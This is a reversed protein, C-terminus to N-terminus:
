HEESRLTAPDLTRAVQDLSPIVDTSMEDVTVSVDRIADLNPGVFPVGTALRYLPDDVASRASAADAQVQAIAADRADSAGFGNPDSLQEQLASVQVAASQLSRYAQYTRWGVWATALLILAGAILMLWALIRSTSRSPPPDETPDTDSM